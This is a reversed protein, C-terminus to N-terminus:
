NLDKILLSHKSNLIIRKACKQSFDYHVPNRAEKILVLMMSPKQKFHELVVKEAGGFNGPTFLWMTKLM